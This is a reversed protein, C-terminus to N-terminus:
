QISATLGSIVKWNKRRWITTLDAPRGADFVPKKKGKKFLFASTKNHNRANIAFIGCANRPQAQESL